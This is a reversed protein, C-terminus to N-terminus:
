QKCRKRRERETDISPQQSANEYGLEMGDGIQHTVQTTGASEIRKQRSVKSGVNRPGLDFELSQQPCCILPFREKCAVSSHPPSVATHFHKPFTQIDESWLCTEKKRKAGRNTLGLELGLELGLGLTDIRITEDGNKEEKEDQQHPCAETYVVIERREDGKREGGRREFALPLLLVKIIRAHLYCIQSLILGLM